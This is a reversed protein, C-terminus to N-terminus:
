VLAGHGSVLRDAASILTGAISFLHDITVSCACVPWSGSIVEGTPDWPRFGEPIEGESTSGSVAAVASPVRKGSIGFSGGMSLVGHLSAIVITSLSVASLFAAADVTRSMNLLIGRPCIAGSKQSGKLGHVRARISSYDWGRWLLQEQISRNWIGNFREM